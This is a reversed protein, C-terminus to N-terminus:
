HMRAADVRQACNSSLVDSRSYVLFCYLAAGLIPLLLVCFWFVQKFAGSKDFRFLFIEMASQTVVYGLIAAFILFKAVAAIAGPGGGASATWPWAVLTLSLLASFRYLRRAGQSVIWDRKIYEYSDM